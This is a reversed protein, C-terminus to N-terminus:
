VPAFREAFYSKRTRVNEFAIRVSIFVPSGTRLLARRNQMELMTPNAPSYEANLKRSVNM